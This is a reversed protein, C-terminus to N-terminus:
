SWKPRWEKHGPIMKMVNNHDLEKMGIKNWHWNVYWEDVWAILGNNLLHPIIEYEAGECNLKMIIYDESKFNSKIFRAIDVTKVDYFVNRKVGGTRKTGYMSGANRTTGPYYRRVGDSSWAAAPILNTKIGLSKIAQINKRDCEFSYTEFDKNMKQFYKVSIGNRAGIDLFINRM